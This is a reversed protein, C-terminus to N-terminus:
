DHYYYYVYYSCCDCYSPCSSSLMMIIRLRLRCLLRFCMIISIVVRIRVIIIRRFLMIITRLCM